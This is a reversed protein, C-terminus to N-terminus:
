LVDASVRESIRYYIIPWVGKVAPTFDGLAAGCSMVEAPVVVCGPEHSYLWMSDLSIVEV